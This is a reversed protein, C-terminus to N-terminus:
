PAVDQRRLADAAPGVMAFRILLTSGAFLLLVLPLAIAALEAWPVIISPAPVPVTGAPTLWAFPIALWGLSLGLAVGGIVGYLLLLAQEIALMRALIGPREGLARLVALEGKRERAMFAATVLFGISALIAAAISGLFLAGIMGLAIPDARNSAEIALRNFVSSASYPGSGLM